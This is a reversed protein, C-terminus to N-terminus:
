VKLYPCHAHAEVKAVWDGIVTDLYKWQGCHIIMPQNWVTCESSVWWSKTVLACAFCSNTLSTYALNALKYTLFDHWSRLRWFNREPHLCFVHRKIEISLHSENPKLQLQFLEDHGNFYHTLSMLLYCYWTWFWRISLRSM